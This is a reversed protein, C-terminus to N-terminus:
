DQNLLEQAKKIQDMLIKKQEPPMKAMDEVLPYIIGLRSLDRVCTFTDFFVNRTEYHLNVQNIQASYFSDWDNIPYKEWAADLVNQMYPMSVKLANIVMNSQFNPDPMEFLNLTNAAYMDLRVICGVVLGSQSVTIENSVDKGYSTKFFFLVFM